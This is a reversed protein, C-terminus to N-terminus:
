LMLFANCRGSANAKGAILLGGGAVANANIARPSPARSTEV